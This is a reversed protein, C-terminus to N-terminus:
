REIHYNLGARSEQGSEIEIDFKESLLYRLTVIQGSGFLSVGYSLYLAPSLFKGVTFAAGGLTQSDAVGFTDFGLRSGIRKALFNGGFATAAQGLQAGEASSASRLPRGLILYSLAEAQDLAPDSWVSLQPLRASGVVEIGVTVGEVKRQARVEIGPDDLPSSAFLLRGRIIELDQGYAKYTGRVNLTGRGTTARGSRENVQLNGDIGGDFGFGKLTVKDGLTIEVRARLDIKGSVTEGERPDVVVVDPSATVAGDLEEIAIAAEPIVVKGTVRLRSGSYALTLDPSVTASVQPTNAVRVGEGSLRLRGKRAEELIDNVSGEIRLAGGGTDILGDLELLRGDGRLSLTSERVRIGLAPVEAALASLEVSGALQPAAWTGSFNVNAAAAGKVNAADAMVLELASIDPLDLVLQGQMVADSTVFPSAGTLEGSIRGTEELEGDVRVKLSEADLAATLQVATWQLLPREALDIQAVSGAPLRLAITGQPQEGKRHSFSLEGEAQGEVKIGEVGLATALGDLDLARLQGTLTQGKADGTAALCIEASRSGLLCTEDLGIQGAEWTLSAPAKMRLAESGGLELDLTGIQGSWDDGRTSGALALELNARASRASISLTHNAKDGRLEAVLADVVAGGLDLGEANLKLQGDSEGDLEGDVDVAFLAASGFETSLREGSLTGVIKPSARSGSINFNAVIEGVAGPLLDALNLPALKVALDLREGPDGEVQLRSTGLSVDINARSRAGDVVFSGGGRLARERLTGGLSDIAIRLTPSQPDQVGTLGIEGSINGPVDALLMSPDFDQLTAKIEASLVPTWGIQGSATISGNEEQIAFTDLRFGVNSLQGALAVEADIVGRRLQGDVLAVDLADPTGSLTLQGSLLAQEGASGVPLELADIMADLKLDLAEAFDVRGHIDLTGRTIRPPANADALNAAEAVSASIRLADISLSGGDDVLALRAGETQLRQGDIDLLADLAATTADGSANMSVALREFPPETLWRSSGALALDASVQWRMSSDIRASVEGADALALNATVNNSEGGIRLSAAPTQEGEFTLSAALEADPEGLLGLMLPQMVLVGQQNRAELDAISLRGGAIELSTLNLATAPLVVHAGQVVDLQDVVLEALSLDIPLALEPWPLRDPLRIRTPAQEDTPEDLMVHIRDIRLSNVQLRGSILSSVAHDLRLSDIHISVGDAVFDVDRLTLPGALRGESTGIRLAGEPLQALVQALTWDRAGGSNLFWLLGIVPLTVMVLLALLWRRRRSM